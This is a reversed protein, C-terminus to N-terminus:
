STLDVGSNDNPVEPLKRYGTGRKLLQVVQILTSKMMHESRDSVVSLAELEKSAAMLFLSSATSQDKRKIFALAKDKMKVGERILRSYTRLQEERTESGRNVAREIITRCVSTRSSRGGEAADIVLRDIEHITDLDLDLVVRFKQKPPEEKKRTM